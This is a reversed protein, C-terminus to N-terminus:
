LPELDAAAQGRDEGQGEAVPRGAWGDDPSQRSRRGVDLM